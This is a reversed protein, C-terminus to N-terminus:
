FGSRGRERKGVVQLHNALQTVLVLAQHRLTFGDTVKGAYVAPKLNSEHKQLQARISFHQEQNQCKESLPIVEIRNRLKLIEKTGEKKM